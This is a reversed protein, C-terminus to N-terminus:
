FYDSFIDRAKAILRGIPTNEWWGKKRVKRKAGERAWYKVLGLCVIQGPNTIRMMEGSANFVDKVMGMKVPMNLSLELMELFGGLDALEGAVVCGAAAEKAFAMRKLADTIKQTLEKAKPEITEYLAIRPISRHMSGIKSIIKDEETISSKDLTAERKLVDEAYERPMKFKDSILETLDASGIPLIEISKIHGANYVIIHTSSYSVYIFIVGLDKELEELVTQAAAIGSLVIDQIEFGATNIARRLNHLHTILGTVIEMDIELRTGFMGSPDKVGDQGDLIFDRIISHIIERDFPLAITKAAETVREIDRRSIENEKEAITINGRTNYSRINSGDCSAILSFAKARAMSESKEIARSVVSAVESLDSIAGGEVGRSPVSATGQIVINGKDDISCIACTAFNGSINLSTINKRKKM